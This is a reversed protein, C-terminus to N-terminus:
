GPGVSPDNGGFPNFVGSGNNPGILNGGPQFIGSNPGVLNGSPGRPGGIMLPDPDGIIRPMGQNGAGPGFYPNGGGM